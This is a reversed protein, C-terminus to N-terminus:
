PWNVEDLNGGVGYSQTSNLMQQAKSLETVSPDEEWDNLEEELSVEELDNIYRYLTREFDDASTTLYERTISDRIAEEEAALGWAEIILPMVVRHKRQAQTVTMPAFGASKRGPSKGRLWIDPLIHFVEPVLNYDVVPTKYQSLAKLALAASKYGLETAQENLRLYEKVSKDLKQHANTPTATDPDLGLKVALQVVSKLVKSYVDIDMMTRQFYNDM